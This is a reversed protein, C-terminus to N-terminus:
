NTKLLAAKQINTVMSGGREEGKRGEKHHVLTQNNNNNNNRFDVKKLTVLHSAVTKM